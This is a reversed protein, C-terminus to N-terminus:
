KLLENVRKQVASIDYGAKVLRNVRDNGNGWEGRIVEKAIEDISKKAPKNSAEKGTLITNVRDQIADADYGAKALKSARDAGNGWKGAIVEKAIEDISKKVPEPKKFGNKGAEKILKPYDLYAYNMDVNGKVGDVKGSASYQWIGYDKEYQCETHYQAVWRAVNDYWPDTLYNNWWNTNAYIGVWYGADELTKVFTQANALIQKPGVASVVADELDYYVPYELKRGKLMRLVHEAESKAKDVNTAYSYLYAGYPIGLRECEKANREFTNDDQSTMNMGFGCRLIAFDVGSAKAREWDVNSQWASVDIGLKQM